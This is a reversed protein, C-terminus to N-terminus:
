TTNWHRNMELSLSWLMYWTNVFDHQPRFGIHHHRWMFVFNTTEFTNRPRCPKQNGKSPVTFLHLIRKLVPAAGFTRMKRDLKDNTATSAYPLGLALQVLSLSFFTYFGIFLFSPISDSLRTSWPITPEIEFPDPRHLRGSSGIDISRKWIVSSGNHTWGAHFDSHRGRCDLGVNFYDDHINAITFYSGTSLNWLRLSRDNDQSDRSLLYLGQGDLNLTDAASTHGLLKWRCNGAFPTCISITTWYSSADSFWINGTVLDWVLIRSDQLSAVVCTNQCAITIAITNTGAKWKKFLTGSQLDYVVIFNPDSSELEQGILDFAKLGLSVNVIESFRSELNNLTPPALVLEMPELNYRPSAPLM